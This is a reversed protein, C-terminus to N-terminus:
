GKLSNNMNDHINDLVFSYSVNLKEIALLLYFSAYSGKFTELYKVLSSFENDAILKCINEVHVHNYM